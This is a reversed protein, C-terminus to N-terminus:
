KGKTSFLEVSKGVLASLSPDRAGMIIVCDGPNVDAKLRALLEERGAVVQANFEVPGLGEILDQSSIDKNATGGAYYIPLLYLSDNNHFIARFTSIYEDKLFRTPGFGHPQYVAIIRGSIGRATNVAAAIKAPNHAFDDVVFVGRETSTVNFRRAVGAFNRVAGALQKGACGLHECVCLAARLNELNHAGPLPLHYAFGGRSLIVSDPLTEEREPRWGALKNRGFSTSAAFGSLVPDDANCASWASNKVLTEFLAKLEEVTKHDRSVNLVVAFEPHYKIITGDSEDAEVVLLDSGGSYANGAMGEKELSILPAGSVLSPSQGCATLFEFIMATVTSKGSTGAVAITRRTGIIAALLDSRHLIPIERSRAAAVDPNSDEIATSVCLLDTGEGLGAGDQKSLTCGLGELCRRMAATDESELLRDSGSVGLGQFRLYQALASMGSGFVGAFHVSRCPVGGVLLPPSEIYVLTGESVTEYLRIVDLSRLCLCGHSLPTGVLDERNTGHIYIFREFSDVGPGRNVGEELGELRMVRALILNEERSKGDWDTGTDRREKFIRLPPAGSGTKERIRHIGPPTRFSNERIGVGYRSTSCDFHEVIRNGRCMYLKQEEISQVLYLEDPSPLFKKLRDFIRNLHLTKM